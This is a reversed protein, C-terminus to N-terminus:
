LNPFLLKNQYPESLKQQIGFNTNQQNSSMKLYPWNKSKKITESDKHLQWKSMITYKNVIHNELRDM